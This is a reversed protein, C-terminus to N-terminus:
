VKNFQKILIDNCPIGYQSSIYTKVDEFVSSAIEDETSPFIMSDTTISTGSAIEFLIFYEVLNNM